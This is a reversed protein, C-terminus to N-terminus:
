ETEICFQLLQASFRANGLYIYKRLKGICFAIQIFFVAVVLQVEHAIGIQNSFLFYTGEYVAFLFNTTRLDALESSSL